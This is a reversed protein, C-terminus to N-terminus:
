DMFPNDFVVDSFCRKRHIQPPHQKVLAERVAGKLEVQSSGVESFNTPALERGKALARGEQSNVEGSTGFKLANRLHRERATVM